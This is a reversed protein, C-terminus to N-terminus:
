IIDYQLSSVFKSIYKKIVKIIIVISYFGPVGRLAMSFYFYCLIFFIINQRLLMFFIIFTSKIYNPNDKFLLCYFNTPRM